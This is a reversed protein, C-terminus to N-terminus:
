GKTIVEDLNLILSTLATFAALEEVPLTDDRPSEGISVLERAADTDERFSREFGDLQELLIKAEDDNPRRGVALAFATKVREARGPPGSAIVREALMRAAEVFTPDNMLTLAQLPTNTTSRRVTCFERDPADFVTMAPHPLTRKWFTYISRRYLDPGTAQDWKTGPYTEGVIVGDYLGEPQYPRVSPGGVRDSLLGAVSLAQDRILEAPLRVRPGRALSRNEPDRSWQGPAVASEQRYTASLVINKMLRKVNWGSGVFDTALWDLLAPHSPAEGQLGFDGSTKVLGVGFLQQWFRNVVVRATTPHRPHTLWRALGLRNAPANRPWRGLVEEPVGPEVPKGPSDYRGRMLVHTQRRQDMEDMVMTSPLSRALAFLKRRVGLLEHNPHVKRYLWVRAFGSDTHRLAWPIATAEFEQRIEAESLARKWIAVEDIAGDFRAGSPANDHGIHYPVQFKAGSQLDDFLVATEVERGDIFLRVWSAHARMADKGESGEYLATVHRWHGPRLGAGKSRVTISYSPYRISLRLEIEEGKMRLGIGKGHQSSAPDPAYDIASFLPADSAPSNARLWLSLTFARHDELKVPEEAAVETLACSSEAIGAIGTDDCTLAVAADPVREIAEMDRLSDDNPKWARVRTAEARGLRDARRRLDAIRIRQDPTPAPIMPVANGARGAEGYEPVNDFFAFLRYYDEQSIPDFKHDHCRACEFTLGLWAMGLTRVRDAVYEVRYEEEIIGGESNIVHNRNFGTAIRQELTPRPLLDGALQQVVFQDYPLNANFAGIVWDRWRWMSRASDNNFGHTDAYRAVDLWDMAMREGYQQSALARDVAEEFAPEGLRAVAEAFGRSEELSPPLGTLDLAMRRLWTAAPASPSPRLGDVDLRALVFSDLPQRLWEPDSVEPEAPQVPPEFAWHKQYEAGESIWQRLVEVDLRDLPDHGMYAPPMRTALDTSSVRRFLESNEPEGPKVPTRGSATPLTAADRQDLRLGAQRQAADPGHCSFCRDALLPRVQRGFDISSASLTTLGAALVFLSGRILFRHPRALMLCAVTGVPKVTNHRILNNRSADATPIPTPERRERIADADVASVRFVGQLM